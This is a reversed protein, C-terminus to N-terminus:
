WKIGKSPTSELNPFISRLAQEKDAATYRAQAWLSYVGYAQVLSVAQTISSISSLSQGYNKPMLNTLRKKWNTVDADNFRM